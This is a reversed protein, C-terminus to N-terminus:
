YSEVEIPNQVTQLGHATHFSLTGDANFSPFQRLEGPTTVVPLAKFRTDDLNIIMIDSEILEHGDDTSKQFALTHGDPSFAPFDGDGPRFTARDSVRYLYLGTTLGNYAVWKGDASIVPAYFRDDGASIEQEIPGSEAKLYIRDCQQWVTTEGATSSPLVNTKLASSRLFGLHNDLAARHAEAASQRDADNALMLSDVSCNNIFGLESLTAPMATNVLVSFNATKGGRNPLGWASVMESQIKDRLAFSAASAGECCFTETGSAPTGSNANAHIAVFFDAGNSNAYSARGTLSVFVDTSRTMIVTYGAEELEDRLKLSVDLVVDAEEMSCGVAGPDEGGHGPDVCVTIGNPEVQGGVTVSIEDWAILTGSADYGEVRLDHAGKEGFTYTFAFQESWTGVCDTDPEKANDILDQAETFFSSVKNVYDPDTAYGCEKIHNLYGIPDDCHAEWGDYVSRGIFVWYGKVADEPTRWMCWDTGQPESPTVLTIKEAYGEMEARWKNGTPNGAKLFLDSTGRASELICQSMYVKALAPCEIPTYAVASILEEWSYLGEGTTSGGSCKLEIWDSEQRVFYKAFVVDSSSTAKFDVSDEITAGDSPSAFAIWPVDTDTDMDSDADTDDDADTDTDDGVDTDTDGDADGDSDGDADGDTDGDADGDTDGDADADGDGDADADGDGDADADTDGDGDADTDGDADADSDSDADGDTSEPVCVGDVCRLNEDCTGDTSCADDSDDNDKLNACSSLLLTIQSFVLCVIWENSLRM